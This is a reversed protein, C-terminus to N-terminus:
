EQTYDKKSKNRFTITIPTGIFDYKERIKNELYRKYSFHFFEKDNVFIVFEPPNSSVQTAYSVKPIYSKTGTPQHKEVVAAVYRNLVGTEVRKARSELSQDVMEYVAHVNKKEKASVFIVAAWPLFPFKYRLYAIYLDMLDTGRFGVARLEEPLDTKEKILDWKNIVIVLGKRADLIYEAMHMDQKRIGKVADMVLLCVDSREIARETRLVSFKEIGKEIKGRRRIGATDVLVYEKEEYTLLTDNSDRTTGAIDSVIAKNSDTLANFLASKGVNPTGILAIHPRKDEVIEEEDKTYGMAKLEKQLADELKDLNKKHSVSVPLAEGLGLGYFASIYTELKENDCKNAVFIYPKGSKRLLTAADQDTSLIEAAVDVVFILLDAEEIAFRVQKQVEEELFKHGEDETELEIIGATDILHYPIHKKKSIVADVADRTTGPIDSIIAKSKGLFRNFLSSKGVNPRGIIAVVPLNM